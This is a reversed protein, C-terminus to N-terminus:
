KEILMQKDYYTMTYNDNALITLEKPPNTALLDGAERISNVDRISSIDQDPVRMSILEVNSHIIVFSFIHTLELTRTDLHRAATSELDGRFSIHNSKCLIIM